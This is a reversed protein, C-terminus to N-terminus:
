WATPTPSPHRTPCPPGATATATTSSPTTTTPRYGDAQMGVADVGYASYGGSPNDSPSFGWFGYGAEHLGHEIQARVYLPHNVGWSRPGWRAEPVFLAPMLAEFMSGGWTPVIHMGRYDYHGEFVDVGLYSRTVGGPQTETWAFDCTPPFTRNLHFYHEPPADAGAIALYSAIRPESNLVDYHNCTFWVGGQAASCGPPQETWAGGRLQSVASDYYFGFNMDSALARARARLEPLAREVIRLATALWANDVSSLFPVLPSGDPPWHTLRAGTDPDYWNFFQGGPGREMRQLTALTRGARSVAERRGILGTERAGV